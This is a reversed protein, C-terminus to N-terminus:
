LSLVAAQLFKQVPSLHNAAVSFLGANISGIMTTLM